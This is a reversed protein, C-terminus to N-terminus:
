LLHSFDDQTCLFGDLMTVKYSREKKQLDRYFYTRCTMIHIKNCCGIAVSDTALKEKLRNWDDSEYWAEDSTTNLKHYIRVHLIDNAIIYQKRLVKWFM